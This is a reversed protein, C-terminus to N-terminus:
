QVLVAGPGGSLLDTGAGGNVTLGIVGAALDTADVTDNGGLANFTLVDSPGDAGFVKVLAHLGSVTVGHQQDGTVTATDAGQTANVVVSDAAGDGTPGGPAGALDVDAETVDTGSLNDVTVTDVGVVATLDVREIGNLDMSVHGVDRVLQARSGNAALDFNEPAATGNFELTDKGAQGEVTDSGDGPEWIVQDGGSGGRLVDAGGDGILTDSGGDGFLRDPRSGGFLEDDGAGGHLSASPLQGNQEDIALRDSGDGGLVVIRDVNRITARPGPIAVAGGNVEIVGAADRGVLTTGGRAGAVVTLVGHVRDFRAITAPSASASASASPALALTAMLPAVAAGAGLITRRRQPHRRNKKMANGEPM